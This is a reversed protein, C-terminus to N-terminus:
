CVVIWEMLPTLWSKSGCKPCKLYYAMGTPTPNKGQFRRTFLLSAASVEFEHGCESCQFKM